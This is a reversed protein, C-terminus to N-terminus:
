TWCTYVQDWLHVQVSPCLTIIGLSSVAEDKWIGLGCEGLVGLSPTDLTQGFHLGRRGWWVKSKLDEM